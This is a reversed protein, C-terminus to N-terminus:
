ELPSKAQRMDRLRRYLTRENLGFKTALERLPGWAVKSRSKCGIWRLSFAGRGQYPRPAETSEPVASAANSGTTDALVTAAIQTLAIRQLM